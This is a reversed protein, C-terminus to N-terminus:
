YYIVHVLVYIFIYYMGEELLDEPHDKAELEKGLDGETGVVLDEKDVM